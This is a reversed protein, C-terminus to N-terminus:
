GRFRILALGPMAWGHEGMYINRMLYRFNLPLHMNTMDGLHHRLRFLFSSIRAVQRISLVVSRM